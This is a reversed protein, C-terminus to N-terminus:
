AGFGFWFEGPGGKMVGRLIVKENRWGRKERRRRSSNSSIM